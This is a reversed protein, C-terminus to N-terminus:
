PVGLTGFPRSRSSRAQGIGYRRTSSADKPRKGTGRAQRIRDLSEIVLGHVAEQLAALHPDSPSFSLLAFLQDAALDYNQELLFITLALEARLGEARDEAECVAALLADYEEQAEGPDRLPLSWLGGDAFLVRIGEVFGVKRAASEDPM